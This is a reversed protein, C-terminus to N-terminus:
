TIKHDLIKGLTQKDKKRTLKIFKQHLTMDRRVNTMFENSKIQILIGSSSICRMMTTSLRRRMVDEWGIVQGRGAIMLRYQGAEGRYGQSLSSTKRGPSDLISPSVM